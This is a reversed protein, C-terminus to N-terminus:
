NIKYGNKESVIFNNDKFIELIKKRLRYIHTEVTHTELKSQHGWVNLQLNKISIPEASKHLYNILDCEKETLKLSLNDLKLERSNMDVIYKGLKKESQQNFKFKLFHVNIEEILKYFKIPYNKISLQNQSYKKEEKTILLFNKGYNEHLKSLDKNSIKIVKFNIEKEIEILIEFLKDFDYILLNQINM